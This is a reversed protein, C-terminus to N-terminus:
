ALRANAAAGPGVSCGRAVATLKVRLVVRQARDAPRIELGRFVVVRQKARSTIAENQLAEIPKVDATQAVSIKRHDIKMGLQAMLASEINRVVQKAQQDARTLVHIESVEGLPTVVVRASLIGTLSAILNEARKVGWPDPTVGSGPTPPSLAPDPM